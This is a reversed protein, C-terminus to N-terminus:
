FDIKLQILYKWMVIKSIGETFGLTPLFYQRTKKRTSRLFLPSAAVFFSLRMPAHRFQTEAQSVEHDKLKDSM